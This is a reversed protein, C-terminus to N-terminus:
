PSPGGGTDSTQAWTALFEACTLVQREPFNPTERTYIRRGSQWVAYEALPGAGSAPLGKAAAMVEALQERNECLVHLARAEFRLYALWYGSQRAM